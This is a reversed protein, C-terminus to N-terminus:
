NIIACASNSLEGSIQASEWYHTFREGLYFRLFPDYHRVPIKLRWTDMSAIVDGEISGKCWKWFNTLSPPLSEISPIKNISWLNVCFKVISCSKLHKNFTVSSINLYNSKPVVDKEPFNYKEFMEQFIVRNGWEFQCLQGWIIKRGGELMNVSLIICIEGPSSNMRGSNWQLAM